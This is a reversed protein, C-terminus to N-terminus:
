AAQEKPQAADYLAEMEANDTYDAILEEGTEDNGWILVFVGVSTKDSRSVRIIDEETWGLAAIIETTSTSNKVTWEEGDNVSARYGAALIANVLKRTVRREGPTAYELIPTTTM